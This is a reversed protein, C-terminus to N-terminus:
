SSGRKKKFKILEKVDLKDKSRNAIKKAKILDDLGIIKLETGDFMKTEANPYCEDFKVGEIDNLIDIRLPPKGFFGGALPRDILFDEESFVGEPVPYERIVKMMNKANEESIKIWIDLDGTFRQFGYNNVAYGGIIMYQVQNKNLLIIFDIFDKSFM